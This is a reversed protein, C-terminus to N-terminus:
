SRMTPSPGDEVSARPSASAAGGTLPTARWGREQLFRAAFASDGSAHGMLVLLRDRPLSEPDALLKGLPLHLAGEVRHLALHYAERLDVLTAEGAALRIRADELSVERVTM